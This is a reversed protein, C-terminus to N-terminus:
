MASDVSRTCDDDSRMKLIFWEGSAGHVTGYQLICTFDCLETPVEQDAYNAYDSTYTYVVNGEADAFARYGAWTAPPLLVEPQEYSEPSAESEIVLQLGKLRVLSGCMEASLEKYGVETPKVEVIDGSRVIHRDLMVKSYFYDVAYNSYSEPMLGIQLVGREVGVACGELKVYLRCGAPYPNHLDRMGARIEAAGTADAITFTQYFNGAEDSSTVVGGVVMPEDIEITTGRWLKRLEALTINPKIDAIDTDSSHISDYCGCLLVAACVIVLYKAVGRM